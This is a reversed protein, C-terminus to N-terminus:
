VSSQGSQRLSPIHGSLGEKLFSSVRDTLGTTHAERAIKLIAAVALAHNGGKIWIRGNKGVIIESKTAEILMNIMSSKKGIIRPIKVSLVDIIEGGDLKKADTLDINKVEDVDKVRAVIVDGLEFSERTEKSSLFGIYPANIDCVSGSFKVEKVVGIVGDDLNPLYCGELPVIKGDALDYLGVVSSYTKGNDIFGFQTPRPTESVMEGPVVVRTVHPGSYEQVGEEPKEPLTSVTVPRFDKRESFRSGFGKTEPGPGRNFRRGGFM